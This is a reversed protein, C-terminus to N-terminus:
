SFGLLVNFTSPPPIYHPAVGSEPALTSCMVGSAVMAAYLGGPSSEGRRCPAPPSRRSGRSPIPPPPTESPKGYRPERYQPNRLPPKLYASPCTSLRCSPGVGCAARGPPAGGPHPGEHGRKTEEESKQFSRPLIPGRANIEDLESFIENSPNRQGHHQKSGIFDVIRFTGDLDAGQRRPVAGLRSPSSSRRMPSLLTSSSPPPTSPPANRPCKGMGAAHRFLSEQGGSRPKAIAARSPKEYRPKEM